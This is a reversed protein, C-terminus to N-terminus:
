MLGALGIGLLAPLSYKPIASISYDTSRLIAEAARLGSWIAPRIGEGLDLTALGAADGVLFANDRRLEGATQRLYYSHGVPKYTHERVLGLRDLKETLRQWHRKLTDGRRKLAEAKGGVGINVYGNAKPVYWAYGPLHDEAFWLHCSRDSCAYSFEEEQAVILADKHKPRDREFMTRYVPCRTGGAGVLYKGWFVGDIEYGGSVPTIARVAHQCVPVGTSRLLWEDFEYRRIAYQRGPATFKFGWISVCFADIQTLGHPYDALNLDLGRLVDPTIWGACPKFRPFLQQDLILCDVGEQRLRRACAAGAPGGGVIVVENRQM